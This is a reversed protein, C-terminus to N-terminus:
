ALLALMKLRESKTQKSTDFCITQILSCEIVGYQLNKRYIAGM